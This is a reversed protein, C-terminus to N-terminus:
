FDSEALPYPAEQPESCEFADNYVADKTLVPLEHFAAEGQLAFKPVFDFLPLDRAFNFVCVTKLSCRNLELSKALSRYRFYKGRM